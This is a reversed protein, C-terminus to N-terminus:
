VSAVSGNMSVPFDSALQFEILGDLEPISVIPLLPFLLPLGKVGKPYCTRLIDRQGKICLSNIMNNLM